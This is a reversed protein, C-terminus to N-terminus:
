VLLNRQLIDGLQTRVILYTLASITNHQQEDGVAAVFLAFLYGNIKISICRENQNYTERSLFIQLFQMSVLYRWKCSM